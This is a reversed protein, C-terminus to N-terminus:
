REFRSNKTGQAVEPELAEKMKRDATYTGILTEKLKSPLILGIPPRRV